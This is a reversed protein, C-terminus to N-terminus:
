GFYELFRKLRFKVREIGIVEVLLDLSVGSSEGTLAIRIPHFLAKGKFGYEKQIEKTITKFDEKTLKDLGKVKEYFIEVVKYFNPDSKVEAVIEDTFPFEDVFFVKAREKIDMLTEISDRIAEMVKKYFEFDAKYGFGEFFEVSRKTLEELDLIERIYVGNMWRLKTRDFIAPSKNVDEIRFQKIIEEKPLIEREDKPHWGLLSLYNFVAESLFGDDKLARVSVAGHRKSLKTRDEGLIIPLHAFQPINFGLAEYIVIQKPTNSLHDEGRIVHTIGMLADDIVVVFNYVPMGDQRVIVFDGFEKTDIEVHGRIIDEFIVTKDPVKFRVVPKIGQAEYDAREEPTLNRCKGSYRYPRGEAIAKEREKELEEESCYCYYADGSKLLKDVYKYYIELRESQRYPGYNGGVDPGEDWQIGLWKLDEILMEEYEKKSRELDTDEIRLILSGNEHKAFLYNFLATRANGLHLYGTPSPAFRVRKM